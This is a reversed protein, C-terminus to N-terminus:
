FCVPAGEVSPDLCDSWGAPLCPSDLRYCLDVRGPPAGWVPGGPVAAGSPACLNPDALVDPLCAVYEDTAEYCYGVGDSLTFAGRQPRCEPDAVCDSELALNVAGRVPLSFDAGLDACQAGYPAPSTGDTCGIQVFMVSAILGIGITSRM